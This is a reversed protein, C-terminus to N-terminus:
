SSSEWTELLFLTITHAAHVALRAERPMVRPRASSGGHASGAHTRFAAVGDVVTSLGGLIRIIDADKLVSPDLGLDQRVVRWLPQLSQDSPMPLKEHAIYVKCTAELIACAATVAAPPDAEVNALARQFEVEIAPIDRKRLLDDLSRTPASLTAGLILGGKQYSFGYVGLVRTVRERHTAWMDNYDLDMLEQLMRGLVTFADSDPDANARELWETSKDIKNGLPRDGPAGARAFRNNLETHSYRQALVDAVEAILPTPIRSKETM